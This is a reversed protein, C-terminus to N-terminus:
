PLRLKSVLKQFRSDTRLSDMKPDVNLLAVYWSKEESAKELWQLAQDKDGLGSYIMAYFFPATYNRKSLETLEGIMKMAEAKKGQLAYGRGLSGVPEGMVPEIQRAKQYQEIAEPLKGQVEYCWGLLDYPVWVAPAIEITHRLQDVAQDTRHIYYLTQGFTINAEPSLPDLTQAQKAIDVAEGPRKMAALLWGYMQYTFSNNPDLEIARKFEKEAAPFDYDYFFLAYGLNAHADGFSDDLELAKQAAERARPM